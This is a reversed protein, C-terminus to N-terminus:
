PLNRTVVEEMKEEREGEEDFVVFERSTEDVVEKILFFKVGGSVGDIEARINQSKKGYDKKYAAALAAEVTQMVRDKNIGKEECIQTIASNFENSNIGSRKEEQKKAM